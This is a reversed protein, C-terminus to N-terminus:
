KLLGKEIATDLLVKAPPFLKFKKIEEITVWKWELIESPQPIPEGKVNRAIFMFTVWLKKGGFSGTYVDIFEPKIKLKCEEYCERKIGALPTEGIKINGGPNGWDKTDKRLGVLIKGESNIALVGCGWSNSQTNKFKTVLEDMIGSSELSM